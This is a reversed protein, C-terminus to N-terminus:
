PFVSSLCLEMVHELLDLRLAIGVEVPLYPWGVFGEEPLLVVLLPGRFGGEVLSGKIREKGIYQTFGGHM